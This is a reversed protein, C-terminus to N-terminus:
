KLDVLKGEMVQQVITEINEYIAEGNPDFSFPGLITPLHSTMALADRIDMSDTSPANHIANALIYLTAYAQAAWPLPEDDNFKAKYAQVFEQNGPTDSLGSWGAFAIAGDAAAGVASVEFGTLDPVILQTTATIGLDGAQKMILIMEDSLSAIFLVDPQPDQMMINKLQMSFDTDKTKFKETTQVMINNSALAKDLEDKLSTSYVDAEDYIVAVNEYNLAAHTKMVGGPILINTAIGARFVYDGIEGSLGAASSIPSFAVIGADQAIPFAQKLHTSIGVGVIASVDKEVLVQVAAKAGEITSMNDMSVFQINAGAMNLEEQALELGRKMPLGYPEANPGTEAVAIGIVVEDAPKEDAPMMPMIKECGTLGVVLAVIALTF